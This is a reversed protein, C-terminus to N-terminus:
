ENQQNQQMLTENETCKERQARVPRARAKVNIRVAGVCPVGGDDSTLSPYETLQRNNTKDETTLLCQRVNWNHLNCVCVRRTDRRRTDEGGGRTIVHAHRYGNTFPQESVPISM